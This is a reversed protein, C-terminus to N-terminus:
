RRASLSAIVHPHRALTTLQRATFYVFMYAFTVWIPDHAGTVVDFIAQVIGQVVFGAIWVAAFGRDARMVYEGSPTQRISKRFGLLVGKVLGILCVVFLELLLMPTLSGTVNRVLLCAMLIPMLLLSKWTVEKERYNRYIVYAVLAVALLLMSPSGAALSM